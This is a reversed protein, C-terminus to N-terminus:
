RAPKEGITKGTVPDLLHLSSCALCEMTIYRQDTEPEDAILHQVPERHESLSFADAEDFSFLGALDFYAV